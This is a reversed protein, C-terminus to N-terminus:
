PAEQLWRDLAEEIPEIGETFLHDAGPVVALTAPGPFKGVFAEIEERGGFEDREGQIFLARKGLPNEPVSTMARLPLAMLVLSLVRDDHVGVRLTVAAGFSFGGMLIPKGPEERALFDLAAGADLAEGRGEDFKGASRGVGRFQFRLVAYGHRQLIKAARHLPKFHMTGGHRPHAHCLLAAGRAESEPSMLVAELPGVPGELDFYRTRM